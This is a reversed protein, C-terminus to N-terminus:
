GREVPKRRMAKVQARQKKRDLRRERAGRSPKTPVRKTPKVAAADILAALRELAEARNRAQTRHQQAKLVLVGDQSIRRDRSDLLRQKVPEPLSSEAIPFRLHIASSTKNVNQGGAGQARIATWEIDGPDLVLGGPTKLRESM